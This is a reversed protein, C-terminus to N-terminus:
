VVDELEVPWIPVNIERKQVGDALTCGVGILGHTAGAVIVLTVVVDLGVVVAESVTVGGGRKVVGWPGSISAFVAPSRESLPVLVTHTGPATLGIPRAFTPIGAGVQGDPLVDATYSAM